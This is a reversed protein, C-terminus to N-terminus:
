SRQREPKKIQSALLAVWEEYSKLVFQQFMEPPITPLETSLAQQLQLRITTFM